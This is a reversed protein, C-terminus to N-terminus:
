NPPATSIAKSLVTRMQLIFALNGSLEGLMTGSGDRIPAYLRSNTRSPGAKASRRVSLAAFGLIAFDQRPWSESFSARAAWAREHLDWPSVGAKRAAVLKRGVTPAGLSQHM